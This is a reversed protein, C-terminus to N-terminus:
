LRNDYNKACKRLLVRQLVYTPRCWLDHVWRVCIQTAANGQLTVVIETV